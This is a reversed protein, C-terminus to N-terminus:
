NDLPEGDFWYRCMERLLEQTLPFVNISTLVSDISCFPYIVTANGLGDSAEHDAHCFETIGMDAPKWIKCCYFCGATASGSIAYRNNHCYGHLEKMEHPTLSIRDSSM